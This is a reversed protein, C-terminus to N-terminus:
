VDLKILKNLVENGRIVRGIGKRKNTIIGDKRTSYEMVPTLGFITQAQLWDVSDDFFLVIYNNEEGLYEAFKMEPEEEIQRQEGGCDIEVGWEQLPEESWENALMDWDYEGFESNDIIVLKKLQETTYDQPVIICPVQQAKLQKLARLRMNGGLVVYREGQQYVLLPKCETLDSQRLSEVLRNFQDRKIQRPNKPVGAVQGNNNDLLEIPLLEIRTNM